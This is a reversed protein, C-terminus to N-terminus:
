QAGFWQAIGEVVGRYKPLADAIVPAVILLLGVIGGGRAVRRGLTTEVQELRPAHSETVVRELKATAASQLALEQHFLEFRRNILQGFGDLQLAMKRQMALVERVTEAQTQVLKQFPERGPLRPVRPTRETPPTEAEFEVIDDDRPPLPRRPPPKREDTM